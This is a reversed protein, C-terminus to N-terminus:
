WAFKHKDNEVRKPEEPKKPIWKCIGLVDLIVFFALDQAKKMSGQLARWGQPVFTRLPQPVVPLALYFKLFM